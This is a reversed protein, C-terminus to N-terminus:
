NDYFYKKLCFYSENLQIEVLKIYSYCRAVCLSFSFHSIFINIKKLMEFGFKSSFLNHSM